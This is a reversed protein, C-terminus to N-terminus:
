SLFNAQGCFCRYETPINRPEYECRCKPCCWPILQKKTGGTENEDETSFCRSSSERAWRQVCHLHYPTRCSRCPWIPDTKKIREICIMCSQTRRRLDDKVFDPLAADYESKYPSILNEVRRIIQEDDDDDDGESSSM